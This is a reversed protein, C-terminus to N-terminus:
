EESHLIFLWAREAPALLRCQTRCQLYTLAEGLRGDNILTAADDATRGINGDMGTM